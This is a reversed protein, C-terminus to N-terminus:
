GMACEKAASERTGSPLMLPASVTYRDLPVIDRFGSLGMSLESIEEVALLSLSLLSSMLCPNTSFLVSILSAIPCTM